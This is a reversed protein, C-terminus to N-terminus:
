GGRVKALYHFFLEASDKGTLDPGESFAKPDAEYDAWWMAFIKRAEEITVKM